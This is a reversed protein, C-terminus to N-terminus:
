FSGGKKRDWCKESHEDYQSIKRQKLYDDRYKKSFDVVQVNMKDISIEIDRFVQGIM